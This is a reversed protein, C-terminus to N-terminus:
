YDTLNRTYIVKGHGTLFFEVGAEKLKRVSEPVLEPYDLLDQGPKRGRLILLDGTIAARGDLIFSLSDSTHGPTEMVRVEEPAEFEDIPRAHPVAPFNASRKWNLSFRMM